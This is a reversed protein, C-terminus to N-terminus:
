QLRVTLSNENKTIIYSVVINNLNIDLVIKSYTTFKGYM